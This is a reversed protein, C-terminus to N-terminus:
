FSKEPRSNVIVNLIDSIKIKIGKFKERPVPVRDSVLVSEEDQHIGIQDVYGKVSTGNMREITIWQNAYKEFENKTM